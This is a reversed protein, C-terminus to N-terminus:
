DVMAGAPQSKGIPNGTGKLMLMRDLAVLAWKRTEPPVTVENVLKGEALNELVYCLHPLDIRSM